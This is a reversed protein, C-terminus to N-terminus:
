LSIHGDSASASSVRCGGPQLSTARMLFCGNVSPITRCAVAFVCMCLCKRTCLLEREASPDAEERCCSAADKTAASM